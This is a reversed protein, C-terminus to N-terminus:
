GLDAELPHGDLAPNADPLGSFSVSHHQRHLTRSPPYSTGHNGSVRCM